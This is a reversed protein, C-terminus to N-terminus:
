RGLKVSEKSTLLLYQLFDIYLYFCKQNGSHSKFLITRFYGSISPFFVNKPIKEKERKINESFSRIKDILMFYPFFSTTEPGNNQYTITSFLLTKKFLSVPSLFGYTM